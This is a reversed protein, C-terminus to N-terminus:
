AGSMHAALAKRLTRGAHQRQRHLLTLRCKPQGRGPPSDSREDPVDLSGGDGADARMGDLATVSERGDDINAIPNEPQLSEM